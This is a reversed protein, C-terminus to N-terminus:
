WSAKSRRTAQYANELTRVMFERESKRAFDVATLGLQNRLQVDAGADLLLQVMAESGYQAALMLPTSKNPSEADIYAHRELLLAAIDVSHETDASAAYHLPAWGPQNVRADMALLQEVMKLHGKICAHMLATEGAKSAADIRVGPAQLLEQAVRLSELQMAKVLAPRGQEDVSNPDVGQQLLKRVAIFNDRTIATQFATAADAARSWTAASAWMGASLMQLLTRRKM